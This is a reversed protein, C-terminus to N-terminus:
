MNNKYHNIVKNYLYLRTNDGYISHNKDPFIFMDFHKDARILARMYEISNQLHVNDDSSGHILLLNGTLQEALSIASGKNYGAMNQQPTRMFRETYVTDYFRWDTVPAIAVGSKFVGDGRSMSMLVNYGGYSWGWIGIKNADIYPMSAFHQAAAVQDDSELIGLNLYTQKRFNEGRAGTGRGDVAVVVFGQEALSYYWDISYRDLVQQSNPGSYQIMVLPYSTNNEFHTPKIMWANLMTTDDAAPVTIFEKTPFSAQDVKQAVTQNDQLTRLLKGQSNHLTVVTPTSVNSWRNIYYKGNNSFKATNYGSNDSLKTIAGDRISAKFISRRLPSEDAAEYFVTAKHSDVALLTTVDYNGSTLQKQLNGSLNYVYIHNYGDKESLYVFRDDLFHISKLLESDIYFKNEEHLILKAVTSRPNVMYLDFRNQNRNLTMVALKSEDNTFVIRPIYGDEEIPIEMNRTTQANVDYVMCHVLSNKEGAKPYKYSYYDPYLKENFTQFSFERVNSEDTKVYALLKSDPSFSMLNTEGFEEEYVWDTAGNIVKNFEGDHTIQLETNFDFKSLWINNDAVYALMKGDPSFTPIMQKSDNETLERVLNRRVDHYYYKAKFSRRYIQEKNKYVLVRYEDPSVLFGEFSDFTCQRAKTTSFLTDIVDGKEYSYKIVANNKDNMQYYYLGDSSSTMRKIGKPSYEGSVIKDLDFQQASVGFGLLILFVFLSVKKM